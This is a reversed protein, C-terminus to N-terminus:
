PTGLIKERFSADFVPRQAPDAQTYFPLGLLRYGAESFLDDLAAEAEIRLLFAQKWQEGAALHKGKPEVYAHIIEANDRRKAWLIFDPEFAAGDDFAHLTIFKENRVLVFQEFRARLQAEHDHIHRILRKEEETGHNDDFLYWDTKDVDVAMAAAVGKISHGEGNGDTAPTMRRTLPAVEYRGLLDSVKRGKFARSGKYKSLKPRVAKEIEALARRALMLRIGPALRAVDFGEPANIKAATPGINEQLLRLPGSAGAFSEQLRDHRFFAAEPMSLAKFLVPLGLEALTISHNKLAPMKGAAVEGTLANQESAATVPLDLAIEQPWAKATAYKGAIERENLFLDGQQWFLTEKLAPKIIYTFEKSNDPQLGAEMLAQTLSDIFRNTNRSHYHLEELARLHNLLDDDYKRKFREEADGSAALEFPFYRAGRGILQVDRTKINADRRDTEDLRVIDFLNLVDWGENLMDVVFVVRVPNAPDELKALEGGELAARNQSNVILTHSYLNSLARAIQGDNDGVSDFYRLARAVISRAPEGAASQRLSALQEPALEQLMQRFAAEDHASEKIVRSKVLVLPKLPIGHAEAVRGRYYNALCARLLREDREGQSLHLYVDKSYRDQRFAKLDYRILCRPEYKDRIAADNWDVTATYELLVNDTNAALLKEVTEQWTTAEEQVAGCSGANLHHAEDALLVLRQEALTEFTVSNERPTKLRVHLGQITSFLINIADPAVDDPSDIERIDVPCGNCSLSSAFQRKSSAFDLFNERTKRLVADSNVFFLFLRYGDEYLCLIQSAMLLTKGSGTALNFLLHRKNDPLFSDPDQLVYHFRAIAQKQYLRLPFASNLGTFAFPPETAWAQILKGLQKQHFQQSLDDNLPM